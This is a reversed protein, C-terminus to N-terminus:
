SSDGGHGNCADRGEGHLIKNTVTLSKARSGQARSFGVNQNHLAAIAVLLRGWFSSNPLYKTLQLKTSM